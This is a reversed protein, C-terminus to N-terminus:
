VKGGNQDESDCKSVGGLAKVDHDHAVPDYAHLTGFKKTDEACRKDEAKDRADDPGVDPLNAHRDDDGFEYNIETPVSIIMRSRLVGAIIRDM